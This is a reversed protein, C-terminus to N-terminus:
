LIQGGMKEIQEKVTKSVKIGKFKLDKLKLEGNALIKIPLKIENILCCKSLSTANIEAGDKFFKNLDSLNIVQNKPQISKFGRNKPLSALTSKFGLRKLNNKGGTRSKQGKQGRASYTGHGSANGRGVRKKKKIVGHVSKLTHLSLEM